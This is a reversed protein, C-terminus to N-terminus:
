RADVPDRRLGRPRARGRRRAESAPGRIRDGTVRLSFLWYSSVLTLLIPFVPFLPHGFTIGREYRTKCEDGRQTAQQETVVRRDNGARHIRDVDIEDVRPM